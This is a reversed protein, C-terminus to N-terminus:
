WPIGTGAVVSSASATLARELATVASRMIQLEALDEDSGVSSLLSSGGVEEARGAGDIDSAVLGDCGSIRARPTWRIWGTAHRDHASGDRRPM